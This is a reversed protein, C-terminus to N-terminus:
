KEIGEIKRIWAAAEEADQDYEADEDLAPLYHEAPLIGGLYSKGFNALRKDYDEPLEETDYCSDFERQSVNVVTGFEGCFSSSPTVIKVRDGVKM